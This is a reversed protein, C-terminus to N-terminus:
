SESSDDDIWTIPPKLSVFCFDDGEEEAPRVTYGIHFTVNAIVPCNWVKVKTGEGEYQLIRPKGIAGLLLRRYAHQEYFRTKYIRLLTRCIMALVEAEESNAALCNIIIPGELVDIHTHAGTLFDYKELNDGLRQTGEAEEVDGRGVLIAPKKNLVEPNSVNNTQILVKTKLPDPDYRLIAGYEAAKVRGGAFSEQLFSLVNRRIHSLTQM